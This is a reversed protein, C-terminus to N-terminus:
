VATRPLVTIPVGVTDYACLGMYKMSGQKKRVTLNQNATSSNKIPPRDSM